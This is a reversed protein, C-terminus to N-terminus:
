LRDLGRKAAQTLATDKSNKLLWEFQARADDKLGARMLNLAALLRAQFALADPAVAQVLLASRLFFTAAAAVDGKLEHVRGLGFFAERARADGATSAVLEYVAQASDLARMELMEQALELLPAALEPALITRGEVLRRAIAASGAADGAQLTTQALMRQWPTADVGAPTTLGNWFQLARAADGRKAALAGLLYRTHADLAGVDTGSTQMVRVAVRDLGASSLSSVLQLQADRRMGADQARQALYGYLARSALPDSGQRRAAHDSWGRDDGMLLQERNALDAAASLYTKWLRQASEAVANENRTDLAQLLRELAEVQLTVNRTRQAAEDIVRWYGPDPTRALAARAQTIVVEPALAGGRMQLRLLTPSPQDTRNVWNLADRDLALDLLAEAFREAIARDLPQYDQTFRLMSRFADDGRRETVYSEIVTLRVARVEAPSASRQWLVRAAHARAAGPNNLAVAAQAAAVFCGSLAPALPETPLTQVRTLLDAYRNLRVLIECRVGEWEAWRPATKNDPQLANVRVLALEVAGANLMVRTSTPDEAAHASLGCVCVLGCLRRLMWRKMM